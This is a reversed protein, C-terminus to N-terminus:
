SSAATASAPASPRPRTAGVFRTGVVAMYAVWALVELLSPDANYGFLAKLLSGVVGSEDLVGSTDWVREVVVPVLGAEQLEHVSSALLGAAVLVLLLGTYFFFRRLDLRVSARYMLHALALAGGLGVLAGAVAGADPEVIFVAALFLVSEVGERLVAVFAVSSLGLLQGASLAQDVRRELQGRIHRAQSQMWLIMSTLVVVAALLVVGEFIAEARGEFGGAVVRFLGALAASAVVAAAVGGWVYRAHASQGIKRLYGLLIAVILAAELGERLLILAAAGVHPPGREPPSYVRPYKAADVIFRLLRKERVLCERNDVTVMQRASSGPLRPSSSFSPEGDGSTYFPGREVAPQQELVGTLIEVGVPAFPRLAAPQELSLRVMVVSADGRRTM